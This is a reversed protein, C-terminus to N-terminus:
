VSSGFEAINTPGLGIRPIGAAELVDVVGAPNNYTLDNFTAVVGEDVMKRACAVEQNADARTDCVVGEIKYGNKGVGGRKNFAAIAAQFADKTDPNGGIPSTIAAMMGVKVVPKSAQASHSSAGAAGVPVAVATVLVALVAARACWLVRQRRRTQVVGSGSATM